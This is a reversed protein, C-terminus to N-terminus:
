PMINNSRKQFQDYIRTTWNDLSDSVLNRAVREQAAQDLRQLFADVVAAKTPADPISVRVLDLLRKRNRDKALVRFGEVVLQQFRDWLPSPGQTGGLLDVYESLSALSCYNLWFPPNTGSM